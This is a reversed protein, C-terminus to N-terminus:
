PQPNPLSRVQGSGSLFHLADGFLRGEDGFFAFQAQLAVFCLAAPLVLGSVTVTVIVDQLSYPVKPVIADVAVAGDTGGLPISCCCAVAHSSSWSYFFESM